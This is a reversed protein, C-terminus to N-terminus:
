NRSPEQYIAKELLAARDEAQRRLNREHELQERHEIQALQEDIHGLEQDILWFHRRMHHRLVVSAVSASIYIALGVIYVTAITFKM